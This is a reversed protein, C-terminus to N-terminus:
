RIISNHRSSAMDSDHRWFTVTPGCPVNAMNPMRADQAVVDVPIGSSLRSLTHKVLEPIECVKRSVHSRDLGVVDAIESQTWGLRSLRLIDPRDRAIRRTLKEANNGQGKYENELTCNYEQYEESKRDGGHEGLAKAQRVSTYTLGDGIEDLAEPHKKLICQRLYESSNGRPRSISADHPYHNRVYGNDVKQYQNSGEPNNVTGSTPGPGDQYPMDILAATEAQANRTPKPSSKDINIFGGEKLCYFVQKSLWVPTRIASARCDGM